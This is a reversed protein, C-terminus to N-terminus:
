LHRGCSPWSSAGTRAYLAQARATQEAPSADAPSGSGGVGRWTALSFQYLGFYRGGGGVARPNGGSECRALAAWNLGSGSGAPVPASAPAPAPKPAPPAPKPRTGVRVQATVPEATRSTSLLTRGTEVGDVLTVAYRRQESGARGASVVQETGADLGADPTRVTSFPLAVDEAAEVTDHRTVRVMLGDTVPADLPVDTTDTPRLWVGSEQLLDGVTAATTSRTGSGGDAAVGATKPLRVELSLGDLGIARSRSASLAAGDAPLGIQQLAEDVDAATVWVSRAVGDVVLRLERGRRLAVADGDSVPRDAAPALLDHEGATLGAASLVDAVTSGRLSVERAVGDVSLSVTKTTASWAATGAVLAAVLLGVLLLVTRRPLRSLAPLVTM